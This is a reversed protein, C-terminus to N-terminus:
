KEIAIPVGANKLSQLFKRSREASLDIFVDEKQLNPKETLSFGRTIAIIRNQSLMPGGSDGRAIGAKSGDVYSYTFIKRERLRSLTTITSDDHSRVTTIGWRKGLPNISHVAEDASTGQVEIINSYGVIQVDSGDPTNKLSIEYHQGPPQIKDLYIVAIDHVSRKQLRSYDIPIFIARASLTKGSVEIDYRGVTKFEKNRKMRTIILPPLCHAATILVGPGVYSATCVHDMIAIEVVPKFYEEGNSGVASIGNIIQPPCNIRKQNFRALSEAIHVRQWTL